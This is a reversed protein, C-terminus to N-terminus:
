STPLNFRLSSITQTASATISLNSMTLEGGTTSIIGDCRIEVESSDTADSDAVSGVMRFWGATGGSVAVGSWAQDDAKDVAGAVAAGFRLGNVASVGGAMNTDTKTLTTATSAVTLGNASAGTGRGATITVIAGAASASYEPFSDSRNIASALDTATQNLSANFPVAASIIDVGDVELTDIAGGSGGTLEVSGTALVEPTRAASNDTVTCLLTGSPATDATQPQTGSYIRLEGGKFADAFSGSKLM